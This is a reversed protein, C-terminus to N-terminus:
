VPSTVTGPNLPNMNMNGGPSNAITQVINAIPFYLNHAVNYHSYTWRTSITILKEESYDLSQESVNYPACNYFTWVKRPIQSVNALSRTFQMLTITSKVNRPDKTAGTDGQRAVLGFHSTLIVWPRIVADIFSTNSDRFELVLTPADTQRPGALVGPLFGRNNPVSVTAVDYQEAPITAGYAFICGAIKQTAYNYTVTKATDINFGHKGADVPELLQMVQTTLTEPVRDIVVIWQTSMPIMAFWTMLSDFFTARPTIVPWAPINSVINGFQPAILPNTGNLIGGLSSAASNIPDTINPM